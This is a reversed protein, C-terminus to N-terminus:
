RSKMKIESIWQLFLDAEGDGLLQALDELGLGGDLPLPLEAALYARRNQFM